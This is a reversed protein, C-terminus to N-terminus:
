SSGGTIMNNISIQLYNRLTNSCVLLPFFPSDLSSDVCRDPDGSAIEPLRALYRETPRREYWGVGGGRHSSRRNM